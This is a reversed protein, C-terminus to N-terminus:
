PGLHSGCQLWANQLMLKLANEDAGAIGVFLGGLVMWCLSGLVVTPGVTANSAIQTALGFAVAAAGDNLLSESEVVLSLRREVKLEKFAAIVSVPDTASILVGFIISGQWSWGVLFHMGVAVVASSLLVGPFALTLTLPLNKAFAQWRLQLAAEFILPPLLVSYIFDPHFSIHAPRGVIALGFGATVLGVSYPLRLGRSLMAVVCAVLLILGVQSVPM